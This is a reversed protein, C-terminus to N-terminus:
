SLTYHSCCLDSGAKSPSPCESALEWWAASVVWAPLFCASSLMVARATAPASACASSRMWSWESDQPLAQGPFGPTKLWHAPLLSQQAVAWPCGSTGACSSPLMSSACLGPDRKQQGCPASVGHPNKKTNAKFAQLQPPKKGWTNSTSLTFM